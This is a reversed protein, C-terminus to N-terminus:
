HNEKKLCMSYENNYLTAIVTLICFVLRHFDSSLIDSMTKYIVAVYNIAILIFYFTETHYFSTYPIKCLFYM